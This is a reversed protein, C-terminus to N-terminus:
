FPLCYVEEYARIFQECVDSDYRDFNDVYGSRLVERIADQDYVSGGNYKRAASIIDIITENTGDNNVRDIMAQIDDNNYM